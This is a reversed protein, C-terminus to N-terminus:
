LNSAGGKALGPGSLASHGGNRDSRPATPPGDALRASAIADGAAHKRGSLDWFRDRHTMIIVRQYLVM